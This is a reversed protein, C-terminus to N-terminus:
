MHCLNKATCDICHDTDFSTFPEDPDLMHSIVTELGHTYANLLLARGAGDKGKFFTEENNSGLLILKADMKELHTDQQASFIYMYIPLQFSPVHDHISVIDGFSAKQMIRAPYQKSTGTKYDIVTYRDTASHHDVRDIRGSLSVDTGNTQLVGTFKEELHKIVIPGDLAELHKKLFSDLKYAAIRQFMYFEGSRPRGDFHAKLSREMSARVDGEMQRTLSFGLFPRFTELLISHVIGGRDTAEIDESFVQREELGILRTFYYLLPCRVYTDVTSPSLGRQRIAAIMADTKKIVPPASERKLNVPLITREVPIVDLKGQRREEEWLIEEIYRSRPREEASRYILHVESASGVLRYFNYRYIAETFEPPPIGLTEFVGLPILPNVQRPGPLVGENVDLIIVRDFSISRSELMGIIELEEIPHTDFPLTAGGLYHLALDCLSRTNEAPDTSLVAASFQTAKLSGLTEFLTTFIAGSLVYSRVPTRLLIAELAEELCAAVEGVTGANEFNM